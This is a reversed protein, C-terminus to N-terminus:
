TANDPSFAVCRCASGPGPSPAAYQSRYKVRDLRYAVVYPSAKMSVAVAEGRPTYTAWTGGNDLGPSTPVGSPSTLVAGTGAFGAAISWRRSFFTAAFNANNTYTILNAQPSIALCECIAVGAGSLPDAFKSGFGAGVTWNYAHIWPSNYTAMMLVDDNPTFAVSHGRVVAGLGTGPNAYKTGFGTTNDWPYAAVFPTAGSAVVIESGAHNFTVNYCAGPPLSAPNAYKSGFGTLDDWAYAVVFPSATCAFAIVSGDPSFVVGEAVGPLAVGPDALKAGFGAIPDWEYAAVYPATSTAVVAITGAPNFTVFNGAGTPLTSPDSYKAGFGSEEDWAYAHIYPSSATALLVAGTYPAPMPEDDHPGWMFMHYHAAGSVTSDTPPDDTQLLDGFGTASDYQYVFVGRNDSRGIGAAFLSGDPSFKSYLNVYHNSGATYDFTLPTGIVSGFGTVKDFEYATLTQVTGASSLLVASQLDPSLIAAECSIPTEHRYTTTFGAAYDFDVVVVGYTASTGHDTMRNGPYVATGDATFRDPLINNSGAPSISDYDLGFGSADSWRFAGLSGGATYLVVSDVSIDQLTGSPGGGYESGVGTSEDWHVAIIPNTFTSSLLLAGGEPSQLVREADNTLPTPTPYAAGIGGSRSWHYVQYDGTGAAGTVIFNSGAFLVRYEWSTGPWNIYRPGFGDDYSLPYMEQGAVTSTDPFAFLTGNYPGAPPDPPQDPCRQEVRLLNTWFCTM